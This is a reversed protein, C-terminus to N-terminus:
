QFSRRDHPQVQEIIEDGIGLNCIVASLLLSINENSPVPFTVQSIWSPFPAKVAAQTQQQQKTVPQIYRGDGLRDRLNKVIGRAKIPDM